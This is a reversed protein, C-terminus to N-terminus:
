NAYTVRKSRPALLLNQKCELQGQAQQQTGRMRETANSAHGTEIEYRRASSLTSDTIRSEGEDCRDRRRAEAVCVPEDGPETKSGQM